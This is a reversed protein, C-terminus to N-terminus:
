VSDDRLFPRLFGSQEELLIKAEDYNCSRAHMVVAAKVEMEAEQLLKHSEEYPLSTLKSIIRTGRDVLKENVAKLDVMLNGYVKGLRVMTATSIMNLVLKTATGSKMRTSGTIVEQGVDVPILVDVDVQVLPAPNCILFVTGCGSERGYEMARLVYPTTSSSAIGVVLDGATMGAEDLDRVADELNDEAGEISNTLAERGGAIIGSFWEPPASFTPPCESADLVGLRGSTGAGVYFVRHEGKIVEVALEVAKEVEPLVKHVAEAVGADEINIITLIEAVSRFDLDLSHVNQQETSLQERDLKETMSTSLTVSTLTLLSISQSLLIRSYTSKM